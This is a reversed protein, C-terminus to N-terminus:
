QEPTGMGGVHFVIRERTFEPHVRMLDVVKRAVEDRTDSYGFHDQQEAQCEEILADDLIPREAM